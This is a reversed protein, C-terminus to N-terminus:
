GALAALAADHVLGNSYLAANMGDRLRTSGDLYSFRGGAATVIAAFAAHDWPAGDLALCVEIAGEAVMLAGHSTADALAGAMAALRGARDRPVGILDDVQPHCVWRGESLEAVPSTALLEVRARGGTRRSAGSGVAGWWRARAAPASTVGVRLEGSVRLAIQTAWSRGGRVFSQTGDIPDVIWCRDADSGTAPTEEGIFGDTPHHRRVLERLAVEVTRDTESVPSGDVKTSFALAAGTFAAMTLADAADALELALALDAVPSVPDV